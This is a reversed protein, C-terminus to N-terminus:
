RSALFPTVSALRHAWRTTEPLRYRPSCALVYWIATPLSVRHGISVFLPAVGSRTRLVAGITEGRHLLPVWCGREGLVPGHEGVLRSKAVGISPIGTVLGLHSAFGCRRPHAIGQGDCLLLDPRLHIRNLAELVPPIERFSLLGPVYPFTVPSGAAAQDVLELEPFSLVAVAARAQGDKFGVDVGAVLKVDGLDDDRIVRQALERQLAIAERPPLDWAHGVPLASLQM